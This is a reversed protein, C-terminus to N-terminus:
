DIMQGEQINQPNLVYTDYLSIGSKGTDPLSQVIAFEENKGVIQVERVSAYNAKNLIIKAKMEEENIDFLSKLPVKLGKYSTKVLDINAKRLNATEGIGKDTRVSIICKGDEASSKFDVEGDVTKSIQNIRIEQITDGVKYRDAKDSDIAMVFYAEFDKIVKAFPKDVEVSKISVTKGFEKINLGELDKYTLDRINKPTLIDEYGDIAYSVIGSSASTIKKTNSNIQQEIKNREAVLSNIHADSSSSGGFIEAKKQILKDIDERIQKAKGMSNSSTENVLLKVKQGIDNELKLIDDSFIEQNKSKEKKVELIAADKKKLEELLAISSDKLVTAVVNNSAVKEGEGIETICRGSFPSKLIEEQRILYADVNVLDEITGIRVVETEINKGYIWHLLSPVYLLLFITVLLSGIKVRSMKKNEKTDM